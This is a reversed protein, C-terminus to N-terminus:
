GAPISLFTAAGIKCMNNGKTVRDRFEMGSHEPGGYVLCNISGLEHLLAGKSGGRGQGEVIVPRIDPRSQTAYTLGWRPELKFAHDGPYGEFDEMYLLGDGRTEVQPLVRGKEPCFERRVARDDDPDLLRDLVHRATHYGFSVQKEIARYVIRGRGDRLCVLCRPPHGPVAAGVYDYFASRSRSGSGAGDLVIPGPVDPRDAYKLADRRRDDRSGDRETWVAVFAVGREAYEQYARRYGSVAKPSEDSSTWAGKADGPAVEVPVAIQGDFDEDLEVFQASERM